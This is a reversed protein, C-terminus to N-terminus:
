KYQCDFWCDASGITKTPGTSSNCIVIGTSFYRGFKAGFDISFNSTGSVLFTVVPVATDAPLSTANHLQIFQSSTKSNYGNVSFLVGASGKIVRNTEYATSTANDPAYTSTADPKENTGVTQSAAIEVAGITVGSNATLKGIGATGAGLVVAESDLTIKVDTGGDSINLKNATSGIVNGSGDVIQSKQTGDSQKTSTAVAVTSSRLNVELPNAIAVAAGGQYAEAQTKLNTATGQIVTVNGSVSTVDVDGIDIGSNAALKGIANTGAPLAVDTALVVRQTIASVLGSGGQVGAQGAIPNVKARDSEDWDDLVSLSAEAAADQVAFTGANIVTVNGSVTVAEGDLSVKVDAARLETDTLPGTVPVPTARLQTDTLGGTVATVTGDVTVPTARLETDTLPGSVPLTAIPDGNTDCLAVGETHSLTQGSNGSEGRDNAFTQMMKGDSDVAVQIHSEAM